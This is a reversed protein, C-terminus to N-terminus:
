SPPRWQGDVLPLGTVTSLAVAVDRAAAYVPPATFEVTASPSVLCVHYLFSLDEVHHVKERLISVTRFDALTHFRERLPLLAVLYERVTGARVDVTVGQRGFALWLGAPVCALAFLLMLVGWAADGQDMGTVVAATSLVAILLVGAGLTPLCGRPREHTWPAPTDPM